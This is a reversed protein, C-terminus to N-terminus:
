VGARPAHAGNHRQWASAGAITAARTQDLKQKVVESPPMELELFWQRTASFLATGAAILGSLGIIAGAGILAVGTIMPTANLKFGSSSSQTKKM